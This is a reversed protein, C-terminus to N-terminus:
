LEEIKWVFPILTFFSLRKRFFCNWVQPIASFRIYRGCKFGTIDSLRGARDSDSETAWEFYHGVWLAINWQDKKEMYIYICLYLYKNRAKSFIDITNTPCLQVCVTTARYISNFCMIYTVTNQFDSKVPYGICVNKFIVMFLWIPITVHIIHLNIRAHINYQTTSNSIYPHITM